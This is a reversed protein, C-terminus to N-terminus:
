EPYEDPVDESSRIRSNAHDVNDESKKVSQITDDGVGKQRAQSQADGVEGLQSQRDAATSGAKARRRKKKLAKKPILDITMSPKPRERRSRMEKKSLRGNTVAGILAGVLGTFAIDLLSDTDGSQVAITTAAATEGLGKATLVAENLSTSLVAQQISQGNKVNNYVSTARRRVGSYMGDAANVANRKVFGGVAGGAAALAGGIDGWRPWRGDPDVYRMPNNLSFSYLNMFRPEGYALDPSVRALPDAQTWTLSLRDYYRYGYYALRTLEDLEKGNFRRRHTDADAGEAYLIEGYPGYGFRAEVNGNSSVAALLHGLVGHYTFEPDGTNRDEIRAVPMAGAGVHVLTKEVEGNTRYWLEDGGFWSRVRELSNGAITAALIRQGNHDYYYVESQSGVIAERLRDDGDYVFHTKEEAARFVPNGRADYDFTARDTGDSRSVLRRVAAPDTAPEGPLTEYDSSCATLLAVVRRQRRPTPEM